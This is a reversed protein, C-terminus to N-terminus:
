RLTSMVNYLPVAIRHRVVLILRLDFLAVCCCLATM